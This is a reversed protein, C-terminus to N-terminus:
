RKKIKNPNQKVFAEWSNGSSTPTGPLRKQMFHCMAVALGDSADFLKHQYEFTLFQELMRALQEKSASGQGTVALKIKKPAYEFVPIELALAAAIAVGQARGLKLMSQVNKGYFPSEIAFENVSFSQALTHLRHFIKALKAHPNDGTKDLHICGYTVLSAKKGQAEIIGYGTVQTGPDVGLIIRKGM